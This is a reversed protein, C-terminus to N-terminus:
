FFFFFFFFFVCKKASATPTEIASRNAGKLTILTQQATLPRKRELGTEGM